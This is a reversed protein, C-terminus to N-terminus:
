LGVCRGGGAREVMAHLPEPSPKAKGVTDGCIIADFWHTLGLKEIMPFTFREFKNTCIALRMGRSKLVAMAAIAGPYPKTHDCLHTGYYDM